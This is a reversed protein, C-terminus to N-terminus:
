KLKKWGKTDNSLSINDLDVDCPGAMYAVYDGEMIKVVLVDEVKGWEITVKDLGLPLFRKRVRLSKTGILMVIDDDIIKIEGAIKQGDFVYITDSLSTDQRGLAEYGNLQLYKNKIKKNYYDYYSFLHGMRGNDPAYQKCYSLIAAYHVAHREKMLNESHVEEFSVQTFHLASANVSICKRNSWNTSYKNIHPVSPFDFEDCTYFSESMKSALFMYLKSFHLGVMHIKIPDSVLEVHYDSLCDPDQELKDVIFSRKCHFFYPNFRPLKYSGCRMQPTLLPVQYQGVGSISPFDNYLQYTRAWGDNVLVFDSDITTFFESTCSQLALITGSIRNSIRTKDPNEIYITEFAGEMKKSFDDFMKRTETIEEPTTNNDVVIFKGIKFTDSEQYLNIFSDLCIRLAWFAQYAPLVIDTIIQRDPSAKTMKEEPLDINYKDTDVDSLSLVSYESEIESLNNGEISDDFSQMYEVKDYEIPNDLKFGSYFNNYSWIVRDPTIILDGIIKGDDRLCDGFSVPFFHAVLSNSDTARYRFWFSNRWTIAFSAVEKGKNKFSAIVGYSKNQDLLTPFTLTITKAYTNM